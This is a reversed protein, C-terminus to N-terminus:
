AQLERVIRRYAGSVEAPSVFLLDGSGPLRLVGDAEGDYWRVGAGRRLADLLLETRDKPTEGRTAPSRPGRHVIASV